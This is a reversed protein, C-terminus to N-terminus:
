SGFGTFDLGRVSEQVSGSLNVGTGDQADEFIFYVRIMLVEKSHKTKFERANANM